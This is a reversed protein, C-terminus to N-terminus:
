VMWLEDVKELFAPIMDDNYFPDLASGRIKDAIDRRFFSYLTNFLKQGLRMDLEDRTHPRHSQSVIEVYSCWDVWIDFQNTRGCFSCENRGCDCM